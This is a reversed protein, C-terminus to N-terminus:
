LEKAFSVHGTLETFGNKKYFGYAPVDVETQLFIHKLGLDKVATEIQQLFYTGAGAGQKDTRICLEDIMYETGTYWHKVYGMSVGILEENEYLGYTLSYHQGTLDTIYLDLQKEDSWDDNWPEHTFVGTFLEKIKEKEDPGIRKFVYM